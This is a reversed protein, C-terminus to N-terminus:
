VVEEVVRFVRAAGGFREVARAFARAKERGEVLVTSKQIREGLGETIYYFRTPIHLPFDYVVIYLEQRAVTKTKLGSM